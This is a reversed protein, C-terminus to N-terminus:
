QNDWWYHTWILFLVCMIFLILAIWWETNTVSSYDYKESELQAHLIPYYAAAHRASM